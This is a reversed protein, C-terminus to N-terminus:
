PATAALISHDKLEVGKLGHKICLRELNKQREDLRSGYSMNAGHQAVMVGLGRLKHLPHGAKCVRLYWDWDWYDFMLPDFGGLERHFAKPYVVGTALILNDKQLKEPSATTSFATRSVEKEGEFQVLWGGRYILAPRHSLAKLAKTLHHPDELWDDDDLLAIIPSQALGLATNRAAVQGKGQNPRASIRKDRLTAVEAIGEGGGDDVVLAEWAELSQRQLSGLARRLLHPRKFTPILVSVKPHM